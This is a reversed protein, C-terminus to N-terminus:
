IILEQFSSFPKNNRHSNPEIHTVTSSTEETYVVTWLLGCCRCYYSFRTGNEYPANLTFSEHSEDFPTISFATDVVVKSKESGSDGIAFGYIICDPNNMAFKVNYECEEATILGYNRLLERGVLREPTSQKRKFMSLRSITKKSDIGARVRAKNLEGDTQFLPYSETVRITLFHVYKGMPKYPIDSHFFKSDLTKLLSM